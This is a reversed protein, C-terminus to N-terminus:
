YEITVNKNKITKGYESMHKKGTQKKFNDLKKQKIPDVGDNKEAREQSLEESKQWLDNVTGKMNGTKEVFDRPKWADFKGITSVQPATFVRRWQWGSEDFYEHVDNIGQIIEITEGTNDNIYQYLPM